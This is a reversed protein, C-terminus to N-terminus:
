TSIAGWRLTGKTAGLLQEAAKTVESCLGSDRIWGYLEAWGEAFWPDMGAERLSAEVRVVRPRDFRVFETEVETEPRLNVVVTEGRELRKEPASTLM